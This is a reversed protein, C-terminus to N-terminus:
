RSYFHELVLLIWMYLLPITAKSLLTYNNAPLDCYLLKLVTMFYWHHVESPHRFESASCYHKLEFKVFIYLIIFILFITHQVKLLIKEM